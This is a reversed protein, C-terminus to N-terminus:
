QRRPQRQKRQRQRWHKVVTGTATEVAMVAVAATGAAMVAAMAVVPVVVAAEAVPAEAAKPRLPLTTRGTWRPRCPFDKRISATNRAKEMELDKATIRSIAAEM